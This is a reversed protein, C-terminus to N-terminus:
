PICRFVSTALYAFVITLASVTFLDIVCYCMHVKGRQLSASLAVVSSGGLLVVACFFFFSSTKVHARM